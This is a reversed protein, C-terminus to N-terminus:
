FHCMASRSLARQDARTVPFTPSCLSMKTLLLFEAKVFSMKKQLVREILNFSVNVACAEKGVVCHLRSIYDM